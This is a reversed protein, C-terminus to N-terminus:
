IFQGIEMPRSFLYGQGVTVGEELLIEAQEEYEVGEAIVDFGFQESLSVVSRIIALDDHNSRSLNMVFERDIKVVSAGLHRIYALSSYGTGFDDLIINFGASRLLDLNRVASEYGDISLNEVIEISVRGKVDCAATATRIFENIFATHCAGSIRSV